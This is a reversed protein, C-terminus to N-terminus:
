ASRCCDLAASIDLMIQHLIINLDDESEVQDLTFVLANYGETEKKFAESDIEKLEQLYALLVENIRCYSDITKQLPAAIGVRICIEKFVLATFRFWAILNLRMFFLLFDGSSKLGADVGDIACLTRHGFLLMVRLDSHRQTPVCEAISAGFQFYRRISWILRVSLDTVIVPISQALGFRLCCRAIVHFFRVM